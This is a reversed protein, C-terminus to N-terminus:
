VEEHHALVRHPIPGHSLLDVPCGYVQEVVEPTLESGGHYTLQRNICALSKVHSSVAMLDHTVLLITVTQNLSLLLEYIDHTAQHDINATPEDLLLLEPEVALARAILMRQFEGGSLGQITRRRLASLGVQELLSAVREDQAKTLRRFPRWSGRVTGSAVVEEVTIPFKRESINHQPVYGIRAHRCDPAEGFLRVTGEAPTIFGLLTKLLTTKGGGNPGIIGLYDGREVTLNINELATVAGFRVTMNNVAIIAAPM